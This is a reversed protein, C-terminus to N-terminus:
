WHRLIAPSLGMRRCSRAAVGEALAGRVAPAALALSRAAVADGVRQVRSRGLLACAWDPLLAAGAGLFVPRIASGMPVPLEARDLVGLVTASRADYRLEPRVRRFYLEVAARSRPVGRAGLAEAICATEDWYRDQIAAPVPKVYRRYGQLFSWMETCHVWTLLDPDDARYPTGDATVGGIHTHIGRVRAILADAAATPAFSTGGVFITTRRLRGLLDHRFDSHDWVGALARPHLTQLMLACLGGAMMAPFDAHIRWTASDPGFLGPDGVPAAYDIGTTRSDSVVGVVLRRIGAHLLATPHLRAASPPM